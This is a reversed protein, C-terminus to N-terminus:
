ETQKGLGLEDCRALIPKWADNPNRAAADRLAEVAETILLGFERQSEHLANIVELLPAAVRTDARLALGVLAEGSIEEDEDTARTVLAERLPVSDVETMSGLGFTAWNRVDRDPDASLLILAAIAVSDDQCSLGHVLALRVDADPHSQLKTLAGVADASKHHGLAHCIAVLVRHSEEDKLAKLLLQVCQESIQKSAVRGQAVVDAALQRHREDGQTIFRQMKALLDTGMRHQLIIVDSWYEDSYEECSPALAASVIEEVTRADCPPPPINM